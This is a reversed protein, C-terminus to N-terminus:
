AAASRRPLRPRPWARSSGDRAPSRIRRRRRGGRHGRAPRGGPLEMSRPAGAPCEGPPGDRAPRAPARGRRAAGAGRARPAADPRRARGRAHRRPASPTTIPMPECSLHAGLRAVQRMMLVHVVVLELRRIVDHGALHRGPVQRRGDQGHGVVLPQDPDAGESGAALPDRREAVEHDGRHGLRDHGRGHHPQHFGTAQVQVLGHLPVQRLERRQRRDAALGAALHDGRPVHQAVRGAQDLVPLAHAALPRVGGPRVAHQRALRQFVRRARPVM